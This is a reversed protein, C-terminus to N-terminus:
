FSPLPVVDGSPKSEEENKSDKESKSEEVGASEILPLKPKHEDAKAVYQEVEQDKSKLKHPYHRPSHRPSHRASHRSSHKGSHKLKSDSKHKKKKTKRVQKSKKLREPKRNKKADVSPASEEKKKKVPQMSDKKAVADKQDPYKRKTPTFRPSTATKSADVDSHKSKKKTTNELEVPAMFLADRDPLPHGLAVEAKVFAEWQFRPIDKSFQPKTSVSKSGTMISKVFLDHGVWKELHSFENKCGEKQPYFNELLTSMKLIRDSVIAPSLNLVNIGMQTKLDASNRKLAMLCLRFLVEVSVFRLMKLTAANPKQSNRKLVTNGLSKKNM